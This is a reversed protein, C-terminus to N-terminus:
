YRKQTLPKKLYQIAKLIINHQKGKIEWEAKQALIQSVAFTLDNSLQWSESRNRKNEFLPTDPRKLEVLVTFKNSGLLFDSFVTNKGDLDSNSVSSEKLLIELFKYDLGYGFIWTNDYFFRQWRKENWDSKEYLNLRFEELGKKRGTLIDLDEKTLEQNGLTELLKIRNDGKIAKFVKLLNQEESSVLMEKADIDSENIRSTLENSLDLKNIKDIFDILRNFEDGRFSFSLPKPNNNVFKQLVLDLIKKNDQLILVKIQDRHNPSSRLVYEGTVINKEVKNDESHDFVKNIFRRKPSTESFKFTKSVYYTDPERAEFYELETKKEM